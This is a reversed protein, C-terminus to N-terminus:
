TEGVGMRKYLSKGFCEGLESVTVPENNTEHHKGFVKLIPTQPRKLNPAFQRQKGSGEM